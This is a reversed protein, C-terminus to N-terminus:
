ANPQEWDQFDEATWVEGALQVGTEGLRREEERTKFETDPVFEFLSRDNRGGRHVVRARIEVWDQAREMSSLLQKCTKVAGDRTLFINCSKGTGTLRIDDGVLHHRSATLIYRPPPDSLVRLREFKDHTTTLILGGTSDPEGELLGILHRVQDLRLRLSFWRLRGDADTRIQPEFGLAEGVKRRKQTTQIM